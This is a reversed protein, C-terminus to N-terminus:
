SRFIRVVGDEEQMFYRKDRTKMIYELEHESPMNDRHPIGLRNKPLMDWLYDRLAYMDSEKVFKYGPSFDDLSYSQAPANLEGSDLAMRVDRSKSRLIRAAQSVKFAQELKDLTLRRPLWVRREDAFDWAVISDDSRVIKIKEYLKDDVFFFNPVM